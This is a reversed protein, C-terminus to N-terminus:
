RMFDPLVFRGRAKILPALEEAQTTKGAADVGDIAVRVPHPQKIQIIRRALEQLLESRKM